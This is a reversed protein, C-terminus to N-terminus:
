DITYIITVSIWTITGTAATTELWVHSDAPITADNFSTVDSGTTTTTTTTGGTGVQTGTASRDSAHRITWTVSPDTGATVARMETITIAESTFFLSIDEADTPSEVAVSKSLYLTSEAPNKLATAVGADDKQYLIGDVAYIVVKGTAPTSPAAAENITLSTNNLVAM